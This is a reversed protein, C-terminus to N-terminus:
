GEEIVNFVCKGLHSANMIVKGVHHDNLLIYQTLFEMPMGQMIMDIVTDYESRKLYVDMGGHYQCTKMLSVGIDYWTSAARMIGDDRSMMISLYAKNFLVHDSADCYHSGWDKEPLEGYMVRSLDDRVVPIHYDVHLMWHYDDIFVQYLRWGDSFLMGHYDRIIMPLTGTNMSSLMQLCDMDLPPFRVASSDDHVVFPHTRIDDIYQSAQHYASIYSMDDDHEMSGLVAPIEAFDGNVADPMVFNTIRDINSHHVLEHVTHHYGMTKLFSEVSLEDMLMHLTTHGHERNSVYPVFIGHMNYPDSVYSPKSQNRNDRIFMLTFIDHTIDDDIYEDKNMDEGFLSTTVKYDKRLVNDIFSLTHNDIYEIYEIIIPVGEIPTYDEGHSYSRYEDVFDAISRILFMNLTHMDGIIEQHAMMFRIIASMGVKRSCCYRAMMGMDHINGMLEDYDIDWPEHSNMIYRLANMSSLCHELNKDGYILFSKLSDMM